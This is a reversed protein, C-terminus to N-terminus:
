EHRGLVEETRTLLEDLDIPLGDIVDRVQKRALEALVSKLDNALAQDETSRTKGGTRLVVKSGIIKVTFKETDLSIGNQTVHLTHMASNTQIDTPDYEFGDSGSTMKMFGKKVYLTSGNWKASLAGHSSRAFTSGNQGVASWSRRSKKQQHDSDDDPGINVQPHEEDRGDVNINLPGVRVHSTGEEQHVHVFPMDLDQSSASLGYAQSESDSLLQSMPKGSIKAADEASTKKAQLPVDRLLLPGRLTAEIKGMPTEFNSRLEGFLVDAFPRGRKLVPIAVSDTASTLEATELNVRAGGAVVLPKARARFKRDDRAVARVAFAVLGTALALIVLDAVKGSIVSPFSSGGIWSLIWIVIIAAVSGGAMNGLFSSFARTVGQSTRTRLASGIFILALSIVLLDYSYSYLDFFGRLLWVLVIVFFAFAMADALGKAVRSGSRRQGLETM